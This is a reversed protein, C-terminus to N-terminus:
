KKRSAIFQQNMDQQNHLILDLKTRNDNLLQEQRNLTDVINSIKTEVTTVRERMPPSGNRELIDIRDTISNISFALLAMLISYIIGAAWLYSQKIDPTEGTTKRKVTM